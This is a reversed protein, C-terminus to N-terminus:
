ALASPFATMTVVASTSGSSGCRRDLGCSDIRAGEAYVPSVTEGIPVPVTRETEDRDVADGAGGEVPEVPVPAPAGLEGADVDREHRVAGRPRGGEAGARGVDDLRDGGSLDRRDVRLEDM